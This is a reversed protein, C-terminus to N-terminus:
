DVDPEEQRGQPMTFFFAPGRTSEDEYWIKGGHAEVITRCISLGVGMGGAKTTSFPEFLRPIREPPVGPGSDWITFKTMTGQPSVSIGVEGDSGIADMANRLLNLLVQQVQVRDVLIDEAEEPMSVKFAINRLRADSATLECTERVIPGPAELTRELEGRSVFTRLRKVIAGARLAMQGSDELAERVIDLTQEDSKRALLDSSTQLMNSLAMLPQNLEHAMTTALTGMESVRAFHSLERQLEQLRAEAAEAETLDHLFGAFMRQGGGFAEGVRLILPFVMGDKRMGQLRRTGGVVHPKGTERYNELYVDHEERYPSPMLMSVNRGIVEERSYGFLAEAAKSFSLMIGQDDIVIMADPVTDLISRLLVSSAELSRANGSETSLDRIIQGFGGPLLADGKMHSITIDALFHSGDKRVRWGSDRFLGHERAAQLQREPLGHALDSPEFIREFSQGRIEAESWGFLNEAGSNWIAIRGADDLLFLATREASAVFLSLEEALIRSRLEDEIQSTVIESVQLLGQVNGKEDHWPSLNWSVWDVRGDQRLFPERVRSFSEGALAQQHMRRWDEPIEPFVEYHSRGIIQRESLKYDTIWRNNCALYRMDRDFLAIAAPVLGLLLEILEEAAPSAPWEPKEERM